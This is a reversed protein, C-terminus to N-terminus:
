GGAVHSEEVRPKVARFTVQVEYQNLYFVMFISYAMVLYLYPHHYNFYIVLAMALQLAQLFVAFVWAYRWTALFLLATLLLPVALFSFVISVVVRGAITIVTGDVFHFLIDLTNRSFLEVQPLVLGGGEPFFMRVHAEPRVLFDAVVVGPFLAFVFMGQFLLLLGVLIIPVKRKHLNIPSSKDM